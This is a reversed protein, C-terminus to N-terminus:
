HNTVVLSPRLKLYPMLVLSVGKDVQCILAEVLVARVSDLTGSKYTYSSVEKSIRPM